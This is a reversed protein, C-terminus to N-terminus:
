WSINILYDGPPIECKYCMYNLIAGLHPLDNARRSLLAQAIKPMEFELMIDELEEYVIYRKMSYNNLEEYAICEYENSQINFYENVMKDIDHYELEFYSKQRGVLKWYPHHITCICPDIDWEPDCPCIM